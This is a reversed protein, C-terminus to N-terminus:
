TSIIPVLRRDLLGYVPMKDPADYRGAGMVLRRLREQCEAVREM